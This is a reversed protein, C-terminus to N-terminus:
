RGAPRSWDGNDAVGPPTVLEWRDGAAPRTFLERFRNQAAAAGSM